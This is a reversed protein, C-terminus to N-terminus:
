HHYKGGFLLSHARYLQEVLVVRALEHNLVMPSLSLVRHAKERLAPAHGYPGGIAFVLRQVGQNM